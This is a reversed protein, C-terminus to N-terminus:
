ACVVSAADTETTNLLENECRVGSKDFPCKKCECNKIDLYEGVWCAKHCKCHCKSPNWAYNEKSSGWDTM